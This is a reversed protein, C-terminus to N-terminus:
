LRRAPRQFVRKGSVPVVQCFAIDAGKSANELVVVTGGVVVRSLLERAQASGGAHNTGLRLVGSGDFKLDAWGAVRGLMGAIGERYEIQLRGRCIVNSTNTVALLGTPVFLM